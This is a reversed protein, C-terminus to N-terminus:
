ILSTELIKVHRIYLMLSVSLVIVLFVSIIREIVAIYFCFNFRIMQKKDMHCWFFLSLNIFIQILSYLKKKLSLFIIVNTKNMKKKETPFCIFCSNVLEVIKRKM